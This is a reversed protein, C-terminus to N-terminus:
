FLPQRNVNLHHMEKFEILAETKKKNRSTLIQTNAHFGLVIGLMIAAAIVTSFQFFLSFDKHKKNGSFSIEKRSLIRSLLAEPVEAPEDLLQMSYDIGTQIRSCEVCHSLHSRSREDTTGLVMNQKSHACEM